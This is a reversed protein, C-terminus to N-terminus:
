RPPELEKRVTSLGVSGDQQLVGHLTAPRGGKVYEISFHASDGVDRQGAFVRFTEKATLHVVHPAGAPTPPPGGRGVTGADILYPTFSVTRTSRKAADGPGLQVSVLVLPERDGARLWHLFACGGPIRKRLAESEPPFHAVPTETSLPPKDEGGPLVAYGGGGRAVLDAAANPEEEYVVMNAPPEYEMLRAHLSEARWGRVTVFAYPVGVLFAVGLGLLL